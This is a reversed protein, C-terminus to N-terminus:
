DHLLDNRVLYDRGPETIDLFRGGKAWQTGATYSLRILKAKELADVHWQALQVAMDAIGAVQAVELGPHFCVVKLITERNPEMRDARALEQQRQRDAEEQLRRIEDIEAQTTEVQARLVGVSELLSDRESEASRCREELANYRDHLLQIREKLIASSGHENILKELGDFLGLGM